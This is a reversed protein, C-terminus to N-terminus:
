SSSAAKESDYLERLHQRLWTAGGKAKVWAHVDPDLRTTLQPAGGFKQRVDDGYQRPRGGEGKKPGRPM